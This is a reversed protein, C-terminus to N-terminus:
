THVCVYPGSHTHTRDNPCINSFTKPFFRQSLYHCINYIVSSCVAMLSMNTRAHTCLQKINKGLKKVWNKGGWSEVTAYIQVFTWWNKEERLFHLNEWACVYTYTYIPFRRALHLYFFPWCYGVCCNSMHQLSSLLPSCFCCCRIYKLSLLFM